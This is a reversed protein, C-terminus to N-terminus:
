KIKLSREIYEFGSENKTKDEIAQQKLIAFTKDKAHFFYITGEHKQGLISVTYSVSTTNNDNFKSDTPNAFSLNSKRFVINDKLEKQYISMWEGLEIEGNVWSITLLGSADIGEKEIVLYFGDKGIEEQTMKWGAPSIVSISDNEFKAEPTEKCSALVFFILVPYKFNKMYM